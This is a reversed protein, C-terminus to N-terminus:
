INVLWDAHSSYIYPIFHKNIHKIRLRVRILHWNIQQWPKVIMFFLRNKHNTNHQNTLKNLHAVYCIKKKAQKCYIIKRDKTWRQQELLPFSFSINNRHLSIRSHTTVPISTGTPGTTVNRRPIVPLGRLPESGLWDCWSFSQFRIPVTYYSTRKNFWSTLIHMNIDLSISKIKKNRKRFWNIYFSIQKNIVQLLVENTKLRIKKKKLARRLGSISCASNSHSNM